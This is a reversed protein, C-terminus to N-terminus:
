IGNMRAEQSAIEVISKAMIKEEINYSIISENNIFDLIKQIGKKINDGHCTYGPVEFRYLIGNRTYVKYIRFYFWFGRGTNANYICDCKINVIKKM